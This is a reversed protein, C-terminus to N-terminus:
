WLTDQGKPLMVIVIVLKLAIILSFRSLYIQHAVQTDQSRCAVLLTHHHGHKNSFIVGIIYIYSHRGYYFFSPLIFIYNYRGYVDM